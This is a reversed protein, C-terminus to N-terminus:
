VLKGIKRLYKRVGSLKHIRGYTDEFWLNVLESGNESYFGDYIGGIEDMPMITRELRDGIGLCKNSKRLTINNTSGDKYKGKLALITVEGPGYNTVEAVLSAPGTQVIRGGERKTNSAYKCSTKVKGWKAKRRTRYIQLIGLAIIVIPALKLLWEYDTVLQEM